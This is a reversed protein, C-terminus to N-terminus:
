RRSPIPRALRAPTIHLRRRRHRFEPLLNPFDSRLREVEVAFMRFVAEEVMRSEVIKADNFVEQQGLLAHYYARLKRLEDETM